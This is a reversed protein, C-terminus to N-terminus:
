PKAEAIGSFQILPEVAEAAPELGAEAALAPIRSRRQPVGSPMAQYSDGAGFHVVVRGRWMSRAV